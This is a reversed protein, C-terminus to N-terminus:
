PQDKYNDSTQAQPPDVGIVSGPKLHDADFGAFEGLLGTLDKIAFSGTQQWTIQWLAIGAQDIALTSLDVAALNIPEEEAFQWATGVDAVHDTVILAVTGALENRREIRADTAIVYLAWLVECQLKGFAGKTKSFSRFSVLITPSRVAITKIEDISQFQGRHALVDVKRDQEAFLAQIEAIIHARADLPTM